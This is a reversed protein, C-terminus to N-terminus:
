ERDPGALAASGGAGARPEELARAFEGVQGALRGFRDAADAFAGQANRLHKQGLDFADRFQDLDGELQQLRRLIDRARREVRLGMLGFAIAQLYAHLSNPSVPVVHRKLAYENLDEEGPVTEDRAVVEYFVSEAPIYMLAFDLTGESPRIYKEAIDDIHRRVDRAFARGAARARTEDAGAEIRARFSALPFKSDIPVTGGPLRVLADVRVGDKYEAQLTVHEQPFTQALLSALAIEGLTGRAKPAQFIQQLGRIDQGLDLIQQSSKAMEGLRHSLDAIVRGTDAGVKQVAQANEALRAGMQGVLGSVATGMESRVVGSVETLRGSLDTLQQQLLALAPDATPAAATRRVLATVAVALGAALALVLALLIADPAM